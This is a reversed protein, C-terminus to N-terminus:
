KADDDEVVIWAELVTGIKIRKGEGNLVASNLIMAKATSLANYGGGTVQLCVKSLVEIGIEGSKGNGKNHLM